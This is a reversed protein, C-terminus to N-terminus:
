DNGDAGYLRIQTVFPALGPLFVIAQGPRLQWIDHDEVVQGKVVQQVPHGPIKSVTVLKQNSGAIGQIFRRTEPNTTRFAIVSNFGSLISDAEEGYAAKVQTHSQMGVIFRLGFERGFNLGHDLHMLHPLLRFEDLFFFVRGPLGLTTNLAEKITLDVLLRYLRALAKGSKIRYEIFLCRGGRQRVVDRVSLHGPYQFRGVFVERLVQTLSALVGGAQPGQDGIYNILARTDIHSKLDEVIEARSKGWYRCLSANSLDGAPLDAAVLNAHTLSAALLQMAALPFFPQSSGEIDDDFLTHAIENAIEGLDDSPEPGSQLEAFINWPKEDQAGRPDNIVVDGQKWFRHLYDGKPDFVIVMDKPTLEERVHHLLHYMANTKGQGIGGVVLLHGGLVTDSLFIESGTATPLRVTTRQLTPIGGQLALGEIVPLPQVRTGSDGAGVM